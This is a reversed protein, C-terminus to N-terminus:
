LRGLWGLVEAAEKRVVYARDWEGSVDEGTLNRCIAALTAREGETLHGHRGLKGMSRVAKARVSPEEDALNAQLRELCRRRLEAPLRGPPISEAFKGLARTATDRLEINPSAAAELAPPIGQVVEESRIKGLAYLIFARMMTDTASEYAQILPHVAPAGVRGLAHAIAWQAKMDAADLRKVLLPILRDGLRATLSLARDLVPVLEPHDLTDIYFLPSVIELLGEAEEPGIRDIEAELLGLGEEISDPQTGALLGRIRARTEDTM